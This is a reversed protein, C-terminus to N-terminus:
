LLFPQWLLLYSPGVQNTALRPARRAPRVNADHSLAADYAEVVNFEARSPFSHPATAPYLVAPSAAMERPILRVRQASLVATAAEFVARASCVVAHLVRQFIRLVLEM